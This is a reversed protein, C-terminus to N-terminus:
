LNIEVGTKIIEAAIINNMNFDEPRFTVPDIRTDVGWTLVGANVNDEFRNGSFSSSVIAIDIDSKASATGRVHSGYVYAKDIRYITNVKHLYQKIIDIIEGPM